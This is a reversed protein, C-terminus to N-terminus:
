VRVCVCVCVCEGSVSKCTACGIEGKVENSWEKRLKDPNKKDRQPLPKSNLVRMSDRIYEETYGSTHPVVLPHTMSMVLAHLAPVDATCAGDVITILAAAQARADMWNM